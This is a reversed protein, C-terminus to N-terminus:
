SQEDEEGRTQEIFAQARAKSVGIHGALQALSLEREEWIRRVAQARIRAAAARMRVVEAALADAAVRAEDPDAIARVEAVAAHYARWLAAIAESASEGPGTVIKM